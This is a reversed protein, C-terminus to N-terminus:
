LRLTFKEGAAIRTAVPWSTIALSAGLLPVITTLRLPVPAAGPGAVKLESLQELTARDPDPASEQVTVRFAAAPLPPRATLRALLLLATVTGDATMTGAPAALAPNVAVADETLMASITVSVAVALPTGLDKLRSNPATTGVSLTLAVLTAKPLTNTFVAAAGCDTIRVEVPATGAVILAAARVPIPKVTDPIAKGTVNFGPWAAVRFTPNSGV